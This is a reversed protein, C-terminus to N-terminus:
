EGEGLRDLWISFGVAPVSLPAGLLSLLRDYRGGGALPAREDDGYAEFLVGTYYDLNRGFGGRFRAAGLDLGREGLKEVLQAFAAVSEGMQLGSRDEFGRLAEGAEVLPVDLELYHRLIDADSPALRFRELRMKNIMRRAIEEATRGGSHLLGTKDLRQTVQEVLEDFAPEEGRAEPSEIPASLKDIAAQKQDAEGFLRLLREQWGPPLGLGSLLAAFLSRDGLVLKTNKRGATDLTAMLDAICDADAENTDTRGLDELGIQPFEPSGARRRRFVTGGYAYRRPTSANTALHHLCVPITFEPRLCLPEGAPNETIFIRRRLDEGAIELFPDAPQLIGIEPMECGSAKLVDLLSKDNMSM